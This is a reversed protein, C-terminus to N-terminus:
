QTKRVVTAYQYQVMGELIGSNRSSRWRVITVEVKTAANMRFKSLRTSGGGWSGKFNAIVGEEGLMARRERSKSWWNAM